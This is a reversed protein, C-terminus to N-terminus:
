CRPLHWKGAPNEFTREKRLTEEKFAAVTQLITTIEAPVDQEATKFIWKMARLKSILATFEPGKAMHEHDLYQSLHHYWHNTSYRHIARQGTVIQLLRKTQSEERLFVSTTNLYTLCVDSVVLHAASKTIHYKSTSDRFYRQM